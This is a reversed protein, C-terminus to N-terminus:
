SILQTVVSVLEAATISYREMLSAQSGYEDPFVDPIGLRRFRKGPNYGGEAIIEAVGSGLGSFLFFGLFFCFADCAESKQCSRRPCTASRSKKSM